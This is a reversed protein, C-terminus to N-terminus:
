LHITTAWSLGVNNPTCPSEDPHALFFQQTNAVPNDGHAQELRRCNRINDWFINETTQYLKYM